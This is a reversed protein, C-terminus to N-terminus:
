APPPAKPTQPEYQECADTHRTRREVGKRRPKLRCLSILYSPATPPFVVGIVGVRRAWHKCTNCTKQESM